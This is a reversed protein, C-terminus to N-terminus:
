NPILDITVEGSLYTKGKVDDPITEGSKYLRVSGGTHFAMRFSIKNTSVSQLIQMEAEEGNLTEKFLEGPALNVTGVVNRRCAWSKLEVVPNSSKWNEFWSCSWVLFSQDTNSV